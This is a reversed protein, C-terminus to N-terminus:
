VPSCTRQAMKLLALADVAAHGLATNDFIFWREAAPEGSALAREFIERLTKADYASRYMDPSGHLRHYALRATGGPHRAGPAPEPDAAVRAVDCDTLFEDVGTEFWSAHRPELVIPADLHTRCATLFAAVGTEDFALAPPTQVLVPGMRDGLGAIDGALDAILRECDELKLRHTIERPMKVAFRFDPPTPPGALFRGPATVATSPPTSRSLM